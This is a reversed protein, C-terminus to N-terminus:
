LVFTWTILAIAISISWVHPGQRNTSASSVICTGRARQVVEFTQSPTQSTATDSSALNTGNHVYVPSLLSPISTDQFNEYCDKQIPNPGPLRDLLLGLAPSFILVLQFHGSLHHRISVKSEWRMQLSANIARISRLSVRTQAVRQIELLTALVNTSQRRYLGLMGVMSSTQPLKSAQIHNYCSCIARVQMSAM